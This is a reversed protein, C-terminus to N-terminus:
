VIQNIDWEFELQILRLKMLDWSNVSRFQLTIRLRLMSDFKPSNWNEVLEKWDIFFFFFLFFVLM